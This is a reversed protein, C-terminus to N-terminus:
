SLAGDGVSALMASQLDAFTQLGQLPVGLTVIQQALRPSVGALVVQAGLLRALEVMQLLQPLVAGDDSILGTIDLVARRARRETIANLLTTSLSQARQTDVYGVIPLLIMGRWVPLVPASLAQVTSFLEAQRTAAAELATNRAALEAQQTRLSGTMLNFSTQLAGIEDRSTVLVATDLRGETVQRAATALHTVPRTVARSVGYATVGLALLLLGVNFVLIAVGRSFSAGIETSHASVDVLASTAAQLDRVTNLLPEIVDDGAADPATDSPVQQTLATADQLAAAERQVLASAAAREQPDALQAVTGRLQDLATRANALSTQADSLDEARRDTTYTQIESLARALDNLVTSSLQGQQTHMLLEDATGRLTTLSSWLLATLAAILLLTTLGVALVKANLSQLM